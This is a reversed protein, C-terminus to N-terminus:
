WLLIEQIKDNHCFINHIYFPIDNVKRINKYVLCSKQLLLLLPNFIIRFGRFMGRYVMEVRFVIVGSFTRFLVKKREFHLDHWSISGYLFELVLLYQTRQLEAAHELWALINHRWHKADYDLRDTEKEIKLKMM